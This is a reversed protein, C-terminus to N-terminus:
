GPAAELQSRLAARRQELAAAARDLEALEAAQAVRAEDAKKKEAAAEIAQLEAIRAEVGALAERLEAAQAQLGEETDAETEDARDPETMFFRNAFNSPLDPHEHPLRALAGYVEKRTANLRNVWQRRAGVDRFERNAQRAEDRAAVAADAEAILAQLEPAMASLAAHPSKSLSLQWGRMIELQGNLTPRILESLPKEFYHTYLGSTRDDATIILIGKSLRSAFSDIRFDVSVVNAQTQTMREILELEQLLMQRGETNLAEFPPAHPAGLPHAKLQSISFVIHPLLTLMASRHKLTRAAMPFGGAIAARPNFHLM